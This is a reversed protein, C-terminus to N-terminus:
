RAQLADMGVALALALRRDVTRETDGGVDLRYRDRLGLIREHAGIRREGIFLDFHYPIPLLELLWGVAWGIVPVLEVLGKVRRFLAVVFNRERAWMLEDGAASYVRWTSRLLSAKFQKGLEGIQSGTGDTVTYRAAPDFVRRAKIRFLESGDPAVARLDERLAMVKQDVRAICDAEQDGVHVEYTNKILRFRQRVVFQDQDAYPFNSTPMDETV